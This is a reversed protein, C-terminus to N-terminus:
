LKSVVWTIISAAAVIIIIGVAAFIIAKRANAVRQSDGDATAMQLGAVIIIIVAAVGGITAIILTVKKLVGNPGSIPDKTGGSCASSSSNSQCAQGLPNYAAATAAPALLCFLTALALILRKM